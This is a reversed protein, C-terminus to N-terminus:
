RLDKREGPATTATAGTRDIDLIASRGTLGAQGATAALAAAVRDCRAGAPTLALITSGGGALCAGYAGAQRAAALLAPLAPFLQARYPQHMRDEMAIGLEEYRGTSLAALFLAVRSTNFIVDAKAYHAPMLARGQITDMEFDPIYVVARIAAPFPLRVTHLTADAFTNVVLGGLLAPAVNDPHNGHELAVAAPLLAEPALDLGLLTNAAQLGGVVATASSGLGRGPPIAITMHIALGPVPQGAERCLAAFAQYFLNSEDGPLGAAAGVATICLPAETARVVFTNYLAFALGLVDFGPGLNGSTAPVRIEVEQRLQGSPM